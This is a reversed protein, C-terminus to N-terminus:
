SLPRLHVVDAAAVHRAGAGTDVVLHGADTVGVATGEFSGDTLEVRVAQGITACRDRYADLTRSTAGPEIVAAYRRALHVLWSELLPEREVRHGALDDLAVAGRVSAAARGVNLGMGVVLAVLRDGAVVSEGLVGGLKGPATADVPAILDNPWKLAPHVEAVETCADAAALAVAMAVLHAESPAIPPRVLVSALLASGPPASWTRGRRGRGATQHDAVVVLDEAQGHHALELAVRNTSDLQEFRRIDVFRAPEGRPPMTQFSLAGMDLAGRGM